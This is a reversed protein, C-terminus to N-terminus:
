CGRCRFVEFGPTLVAEAISGGWLFGGQEIAATDFGWCQDAVRRAVEAWSSAGFDGATFPRRIMEHAHDLQRAMAPNVELKLALAPTELEEACTIPEDM